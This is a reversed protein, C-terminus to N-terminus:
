DVPYELPHVVMWHVIGPDFCFGAFPPDLEIWYDGGRLGVLGPDPWGIRCWPVVAGKRRYLPDIAFIGAIAPDHFGVFEFSYGTQVSTQGLGSPCTMWHDHSLRFFSIISKYNLGFAKGHYSGYHDGPHHPYEKKQSKTAM